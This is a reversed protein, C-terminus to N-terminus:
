GYSDVPAAEHIVTTLATGCLIDDRLDCPRVGALERHDRLVLPQRGLVREISDLLCEGPIEKQAALPLNRPIGFLDAREQDRDDAVLCPVHPAAMVARDRM